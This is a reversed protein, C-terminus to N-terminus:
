GGMHINFLIIDFASRNDCNVDIKEEACSSVNKEFGRRLEGTYVDLYRKEKNPTHIHANPFCFRAM